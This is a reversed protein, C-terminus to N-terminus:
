LDVREGCPGAVLPATTNTCTVRRNPLGSKHLPTCASGAGDQHEQQSPASKTCVQVSRPKGGNRAPCEPQQGGHRNAATGPSRTPADARATWGRQSSPPWAPSSESRPPASVTARSSCAWAVCPDHRSMALRVAERRAPSRDLPGAPSESATGEGRESGSKQRSRSRRPKRRMRPVSCDIPVPGVPAPRAPRTLRTCAM